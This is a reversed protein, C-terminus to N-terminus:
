SSRNVSKIWLAYNKVDEIESKLNPQIAQEIIGKEVVAITNDASSNKIVFDFIEELNLKSLSEIENLYHNLRFSIEDNDGKHRFKLRKSIVDLTEWVLIIILKAELVDTLELLDYIKGVHVIPIKGNSLSDDMLVKSVGYFSKYRWHFQLFEGNAIMNLFRNMSIHFYSLQNKTQIQQDGPYVKHKKFHFFINNRNQLLQTITDKGSAPPGYLLVIKGPESKKLETSHPM